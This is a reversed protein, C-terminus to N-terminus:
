QTRICTVGQLTNSETDHVHNRAPRCNSSHICHSTYFAYLYNTHPITQYNFNECNWDVMFSSSAFLQSTMTVCQYCMNNTKKQMVYQNQSQIKHSTFNNIGWHSDHMWINIFGLKTSSFQIYMKCFFSKKKRWHM